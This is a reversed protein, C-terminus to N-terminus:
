DEAVSKKAKIANMLMKYIKTRGEPLVELPTKPNKKSDDKIEPDMGCENLFVKVLRRNSNRVAYHFATYGAKDFLDFDAGHEYLWRVTELAADTEGEGNSKVDKVALILATRKYSDSCNIDVNYENILLELVEPRRCKAAYFYLNEPNLVNDSSALENGKSLVWSVFCTNGNEVAIQAPTKNDNDHLLIPVGISYLYDLTREDMCDYALHHFVNRGQLDVNNFDAGNEILFKLLEVSRGVSACLCFLNYGVWYDSANIDAGKLILGKFASDSIIATAIALAFVPNSQKENIKAIDSYPYRKLLYKLVNEAMEDTETYCASYLLGNGGADVVKHNAACEELLWKVTKLCDYNTARILANRGCSDSVSLDIKYKKWLRKRFHLFVAENDRNDPDYLGPEDLFDYLDKYPLYLFVESPNIKSKEVLDLAAQHDGKLVSYIICALCLNPHKKLEKFHYYYIKEWTEDDMLMILWLSADSDDDALAAKLFWKISLERYIDSEDEHCFYQEGLKVQAEINGTLALRKAWMLNEFSTGSSAMHMQSELNGSFAKLEEESDEDSWTISPSSLFVFEGDLIYFSGFFDVAPQEDCPYYLGLVHLDPFDMAIKEFVSYPFPNSVTMQLSLSDQKDCCYCDYCCSGFEADQKRLSWDTNELDKHFVRGFFLNDRAWELIQESGRGWIKASIKYFVSM